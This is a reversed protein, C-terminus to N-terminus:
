KLISVIDSGDKKKIINGLRSKLDSKLLRGLTYLRQFVFAAVKIGSWGAKVKFEWLTRLTVPMMSFNNFRANVVANLDYSVLNDFKSRTHRECQQVSRKRRREESAM